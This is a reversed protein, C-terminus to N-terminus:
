SVRLLQLLSGGFFSFGLGWDGFGVEVVGRKLIRYIPLVIRLLSEALSSASHWSVSPWPKLKSFQFM